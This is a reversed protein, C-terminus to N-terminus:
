EANDLLDQKILEEVKDRMFVDSDYDEPNLVDIV